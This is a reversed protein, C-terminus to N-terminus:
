GANRLPPNAGKWSVYFKPGTLQQQHLSKATDSIKDAKYNGPVRDSLLRKKLCIYSSLSGCEEETPRHGNKELKVKRRLEQSAGVEVNSDRKWTARL